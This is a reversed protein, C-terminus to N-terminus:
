GVFSHSAFDHSLDKCTKCQIKKALLLTVDMQIHSIVLYGSYKQGTVFSTYSCRGGRGVCVCVGESVCVCVCM